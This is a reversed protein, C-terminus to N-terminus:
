IRTVRAYYAGCLDTGAEDQFWGHLQTRTGAKLKVRFAISTDGMKGKSSLKQGAIELQAAAIPFAKGEPLSGYTLTQAPRAAHLLLPDHFPWRALSIEYDGDREVQVNWPGGRPGAAGSLVANPNDCYIDQWDASCLNVPNQQPAGLVIPVYERLGPEVTRWWKEYHSRMKQVVDAHSASADTKEAPDDTLNYLETGNVLRWAGWIVCSEWKKLIQGYQVVLMRDPLRDTTGRLIGALSAGDFRTGAPNKLECLDVLTPLLDQMHAPVSSDSPARLKGAPWRVFCPVRHGGHYLQTKRGRMGANYVNVGATGGNDTLFVFITNQKLDHGHLFTELKEMNENLNAIMGFFNAAQRTGGYPKTYKADVWAPGHPTNTPLYCFFPQKRRACESMFRMAESFWFDTCYGEFKKAVGNDQYRGNAYDNGLEVASSIGFGHHYKAVDFGRDMPRYPYTDGVHWKGFLGTAYGNAKFLEPMMPIGRRVIARGATVSTAGNRLADLGTLLQGRTPSCMPASHFDTFRVSEGHLKDMAPTKLVPNGHCSLDGYGQDDTMLVIVNPKPRSQSLAPFSASVGCFGRRTLRTAITMAVDAVLTDSARSM